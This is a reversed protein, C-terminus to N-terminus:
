PNQSAHCTISFDKNKWQRYPNCSIYCKPNEISAIIAEKQKPYLVQNPYLRELKQLIWTSTDRQLDNTQSIRTSEDHINGLDLTPKENNLLTVICPEKLFDSNTNSPKNEMNLM